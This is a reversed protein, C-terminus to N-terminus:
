APPLGLGRYADLLYPGLSTSFTTTIHSIDKYVLAGGVVPYCLREDCFFSTLDITRFRPDALAAAAEALPDTLLAQERPVACRTAAQRGRRRADDVCDITTPAAVPNDRLVVVHQVSPPLAQLARRYGDVATAEADQGPAPVWRYASSNIVFLTHIEGHHAFFALVSHVWDFCAKSSAPDTYRQAFSFACSSRRVTLGRYREAQALVEVAGRWAPAHSDGLLGVTAVADRKPVGFSCVRNPPGKTGALPCAASPELLASSPGPRVTFRLAPNECPHAADRAAAGFCPPVPPQEPSQADTTGEPATRGATAQALAAQAPVPLQGTAAVAAVAVVLLAFSRILRTVRGCAVSPPALAPRDGGPRSHPNVPRPAM